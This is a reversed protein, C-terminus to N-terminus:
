HHLFGDKDLQNIWCLTTKYLIWSKELLEPAVWECKDINDCYWKPCHMNNYGIGKTLNDNLYIVFQIDVKDSIKCIKKLLLYTKRFEIEMESSDTPKIFNSIESLVTNKNNNYYNQFNNM